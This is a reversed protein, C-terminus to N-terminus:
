KSYLYLLDGNPLNYTKIKKFGSNYVEVAAKLQLYVGINRTAPVGVQSQPVVIYNYRALYLKIEEYSAFIQPPPSNIQINNLKLIDRTLLFSSGNIREQDVLCLLWVEDGANITSLIEKQPWITRNSAHILNDNLNLYDIYGVIPIKIAKQYHLAQPRFSLIINYLILLSFVTLVTLSGFLRFKQILSSLFVGIIISAFPIIPLTYRLDKNSILSFELYIALITGAFLIKHKSKYRLFFYLSGIIFISAMYLNMQFNIFIYIYFIFNEFTFLNAPDSSEGVLNPLAQTIFSSFNLALWPFIIFFLILLYKTLNEKLTEKQENSSKYWKYFTLLFPFVLYVFGTWKTLISFGLAIFFLQSYKSNTFNNSRNLFILGCLILTLLPIDLLFWRSHETVIPLFSYVAASILAIDKRAFLDLTYIYLLVISAIFFLTIVTESTQIPHGFLIIAFAAITHILPPYYTSISFYNIIRLFGLSQFYNVFQLALSTHGAQDWPIPATSTFIWLLNSILHYSTLLILLSISIDIKAVIRNM